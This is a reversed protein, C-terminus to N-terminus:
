FTLRLGFEMQRPAGLSYVGTGVGVRNVDHGARTTGNIQGTAGTLLGNLANGPLDFNAFNFLNYFGASPEVTFRERIKYSWTVKMDFARLWSLNVQGPPALAVPPAVAGLQQLQTLSFLGNQILVQGAPTPRNTYTNNYNTIVNNINSATIGRDFSGVHTGPIPDQVTGDGTFDTRFVEGPGLNTNPVVLSTSLPSWFHGIIGLQFGWPLNAYGGLSIQHTRDLVSPGFFRNPNANDIAQVGFDQDSAIPNVPVSGGSNEFRSLAYSVQLNLTRVGRFPHQASQTFKTQLGNYVSRGVPEYFPLPPADSNIGPFACPYGIVSGCPQDFDASSTLGNNAFDVMSAGGGGPYQGPCAQIAQGVTLVGCKALTAAIAQQAAPKNFYRIDGTHNEDIGVFYHTQVNRVFDASFIMGPRIEREIGMNTQVSRPTRFNPDYMAAISGFGLGQNLLSGVYNPNPASLSFPSDAQYQKQFAAIQNAVTGIAVPGGDAASCFTPQLTRNGPIPVPVPIATGSCASAGQLFVDGIPVRFAPDFPALVTLVNEYYLGIGGRISTKGNGAPDWAFGLQPAFNANPQRVQNGLGPMLANLQPIAPYDSDSRGTERVYRLGYSLTFNKTWKWSDGVYIGLRHYFYSGAPLGLGPTPTLYGLGNSVGVYEVPYNLPNGDGGPFPGTEAFAEESAGVNTLVYPTLSQLPAFAAAAIRNFDFGYRVIHRGIAKSGDYKAQLDSQLVAAPANGSAGTQLGTNGMQIDLPYDALPLGSGRAADAVQHETKLYGFRISHSFSGTNFDLGAVNTRTVNNGDYVSFGLGGNATFSNKFYSFRYFAHASQALQCDAKAMFNNERFPSSFSGSYQQFPAAVLVPAQEHQLTREADLFYFLKNKVIPGGLRGGYQSRQFPESLGPPAPLGAALSSDRFFGFAEGHIENTGSRTTVNVAGSTTVETSLDMNSQSLQFEQIGSAPINMTTSGFIEDSVDLGDVEIRATRGFRGGISISSYGDKGIGFNAGDQIQVGPELQALDLFNRGNVPLDEIQEANLVGQVTAQEINVQQTSSQVEVVEKENGIQLKVNATSTNGVLVAVSVEETSFGKSSVLTKYNGPILAGSIFSGSSNTAVDIVQGTAVNTITIKAGSIVAGSPDSVIGVISGTGVTTQALLLDPLSVLVLIAALPLVRPVWM